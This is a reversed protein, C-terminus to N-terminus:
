VDASEQFLDASLCFPALGAGGPGAQGTLGGPVLTPNLVIDTIPAVDDFVFSASVCTFTGYTMYLPTGNYSQTDEVDRQSFEVQDLGADKFVSLNAQIVRLIARRLHIREDPNLSCGLVTLSTRALWGETEGIGGDPLLIDGLLNEGLFRDGPASSDMHVSVMPFTANDSLILPATLVPVKAPAIHIGGRVMEAVLGLEVRDRVVGQPDPGGSRYTAAPTGVAVDSTIWADGTWSSMQYFYERGNTLLDRDLVVNDRTRDIVLVAGKDNPGTFEDAMRRQVQWWEAGAPPTLFLRIANGAALPQVLSIM